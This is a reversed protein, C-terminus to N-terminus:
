WVFLMSTVFRKYRRWDILVQPHFIILKLMRWKISLLSRNVVTENLEIILQTLKKSYCTSTFQYYKPTELYNKVAELYEQYRSDTMNALYEYLHEYDRFHRFDIFCTAPIYEEINPAGLYIPVTGATFCDFIKETIYGPLSSSNEYAIAFKYRKQVDVKSDCPGQYITKVFSQTSSEWGIGYLDMGLKQKSFFEIAQLREEFLSGSVRPPKHAFIVSIFKKTDFPILPIDEKRLVPQGRNFKKVKNYKGAIRDNYTLVLDVPLSPLIQEIHLPNVFDPENPLYVLRVGPNSKVIRLVAGCEDLADHFILVDVSSREFRDLTRCTLGHSLLEERLFVFRELINDRALDPDFIRDNALNDTSLIAINKITM